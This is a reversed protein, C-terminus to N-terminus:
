HQAKMNETNSSQVIQQLFLIQKLIFLTYFMQEDLKATGM